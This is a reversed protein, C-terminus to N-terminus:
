FKTDTLIGHSTIENQIKIYDLSTNLVINGDIANVEVVVMDKLLKNIGFM